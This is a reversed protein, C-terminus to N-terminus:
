CAYCAIRGALPVSCSPLGSARLRMPNSGTYLTVRTSRRRYVPKTAAEVIATRPIPLVTHRFPRTRVEHMEM